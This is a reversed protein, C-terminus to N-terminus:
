RGFILWGRSKFNKHADVSPFWAASSRGGTKLNRVFNIRLYRYDEPQMKIKKLNIKLEGGWEDKGEYMKYGEVGGAMNEWIGGGYAPIVQYYKVDDKKVKENPNIFIEMSVFKWAPLGYTAPPKKYKGLDKQFCRFGIYLYNKDYLCSILTKEDSPLGSKWKFWPQNCNWEWQKEDFKGDIKVPEKLKKAVIIREGIKLLTDIRDKSANDREWNLPAYKLIEKRASLILDNKGANKNKELEEYVREWATRNIFERVVDLGISIECGSYFKSPDEEKLKIIYERIDEKPAIMDGKILEKLTKKMDDKEISKKADMYAFYTKSSLETIKFTSEFYEIRKKVIEQRAVKKAKELIKMCREVDDPPFILLQRDDFMLYFKGRAKGAKPGNKCWIEELTRFYEEMPEAAEQFVYKCWERLLKDEDQFPNWVLKEVIWAKPGDLGNNSYIEAYFGINKGRAHKAVYRLYEALYHTYIRPVSYGMGYLYEYIGIQDVRKLWERTLKLDCAKDEKDFWDARTYCIYPVINREVKINLPPYEAGAYALVGIMKDPYKEKLAKAVKNLFIYYRQSKPATDGCIEVSPGDMAKCGPCECWGGDTMGLSIMEKDPHEKFYKLTKETIIKVVEPNSICPGPGTASSIIIRKGNRMPFYEPHTKGYEKVTIFRHINHHWAHRRYMRWPIDAWRRAGKYSNLASFERQKFVPEEIRTECPILVKKYKPVVLGLKSPFYSDIGMYVRLFDSQAWFNSHYSAGVLIVYDPKVCVIYGDRDIEKLKKGFLEKAKKTRGIFVPYPYDKPNKWYEEEKIVKLERGTSEKIYKQFFNSPFGLGGSTNGVIVAQKKGDVLPFYDKASLFLSFFIFIVAIKKTM